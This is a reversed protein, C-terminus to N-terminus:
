WSNRQWNQCTMRLFSMYVYVSFLMVVNMSKLSCARYRVFVNMMKILKTVLSTKRKCSYNFKCFVNVNVCDCIM